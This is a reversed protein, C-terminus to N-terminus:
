AMCAVMKGCACMVYACCVPAALMKLSSIRKYHRSCILKRSYLHFYPFDIASNEAAAWALLRWPLPLFTSFGALRQLFICFFCDGTAVEAWLVAAGAV